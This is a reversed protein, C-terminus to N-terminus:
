EYIKNLEIKNFTNRLNKMVETIDGQARFFTISEQNFPNAHIHFAGQSIQFYDQPTLIHEIFKVDDSFLKIVCQGSIQILNEIALPRNHKPLEKNPAIVMVGTTFESNSHSFFFKVIGDKDIYSEIFKNEM